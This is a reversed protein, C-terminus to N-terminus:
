SNRSTNGEQRGAKQKTIVPESVLQLHERPALLIGLSQCGPMCGAAQAVSRKSSITPPCPHKTYFMVVEVGVM